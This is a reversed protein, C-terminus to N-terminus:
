NVISKIKMHKFLAFGHDYFFHFLISLLWSSPKILLYNKSLIMSKGHFIERRNLTKMTNTEHSRYYFLPENVSSFETVAACRISFDWDEYKLFPDFGGVRDYLERTFMISGAAYPQRLSIKSLVNGIFEKKPFVRLEKGTDSDFELAQTYCFESKINRQMAKIQKEVKSPHYYDDSALICIVLGKSFDQIGRNLTKCVGANEQMVLTFGLEEKLQMLLECSGDKSGDDVVILEINKYTQDFVSRISKEIYNIHNYSPIVVSVLPNNEIM